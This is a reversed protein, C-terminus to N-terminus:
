LRLLGSVKVGNKQISQSYQLLKDEENKNPITDSCTWEVWVGKREKDEGHKAPGSDVQWVVIWNIKM